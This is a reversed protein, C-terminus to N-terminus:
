YVNESKVTRSILIESNFYYKIPFREIGIHRRGKNSLNKNIVNKMTYPNKETIKTLVPFCIKQDPKLM